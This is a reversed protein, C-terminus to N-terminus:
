KSTFRRGYYRERIARYPAIQCLMPRVSQQKSLALISLKKGREFLFNNVAQVACGHRSPPNSLQNKAPNFCIVVTQATIGRILTIQRREDLAHQALLLPRTAQAHLTPTRNEQSNWQHRNKRSPKIELGFVSRHNRHVYSLGLRLVANIQANQVIFPSSNHM